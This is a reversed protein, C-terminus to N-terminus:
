PKRHCRIQGVDKAAEKAQNLVKHSKTTPFKLLYLFHIFCIGVSQLVLSCCLGLSNLLKRRAAGSLWCWRTGRACSLQRDPCCRKCCQGTDTVSDRQSMKRRSERCVLSGDGVAVPASGRCAASRQGSSRGGNKPGAAFQGGEVDFYIISLHSHFLDSPLFLGRYSLSM